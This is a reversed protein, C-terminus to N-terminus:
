MACRVVARKVPHKLGADHEQGVDAEEMRKDTPKNRCSSGAADM